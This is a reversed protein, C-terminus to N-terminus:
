GALQRTDALLAAAAAIARLSPAEVQGPLADRAHAPNRSLVTVTSGRERLEAVLRRGITGTAGTIVVRM